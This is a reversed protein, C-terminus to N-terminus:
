KVDFPIIMEPVYHIEYRYESTEAGSIDEVVYMTWENLYVFHKKYVEDDVKVTVELEKDNNTRISFKGVLDLIPKDSRANIVALRRTVNFADAERSVNYSVRDAQRCSTFLLINIIIILLIHKRKM